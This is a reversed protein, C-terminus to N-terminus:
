EHYTEGKKFIKYHPKEEGFLWYRIYDDIIIALLSLFFWLATYPLCIQGIINFPMNRYDWINYNCNIILGALLEVMTVLVASIGMQQVLPMEYTYVENIAGILIFCLGGVFFMTWHSYGRWLLEIAIYTLGGIGFLVLPRVAKM